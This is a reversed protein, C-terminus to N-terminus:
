LDSTGHANLSGMWGIIKYSLVVITRRMRQYAFPLLDLQSQWGM